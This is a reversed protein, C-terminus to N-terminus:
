GVSMKACRFAVQLTRRVKKRFLARTGTRFRKVDPPTSWTETSLRTGNGATRSYTALNIARSGTLAQYAASHCRTPAGLLPLGTDLGTTTAPPPPPRGTGTRGPRM